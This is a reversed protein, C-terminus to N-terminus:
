QTLHKYLAQLGNKISADLMRDGIRLQGGGILKSDIDHRLTLKANLEKAFDNQLVKLEEPTIDQALTLHVTIEREEAKRMYEYLRHIEPIILLRKYHALVKVLNQGQVNLLQPEITNIFSAKDEAAVSLNRVFANVQPDNIVLSLFELMQSWLTYSDTDHALSLIAKAYPRSVTTLNAM